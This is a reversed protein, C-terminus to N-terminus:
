WGSAGGAGGVGWMGLMSITGASMTFDGQCNLVAIGGNTVAGSFTLTGGTITISSYNKEIYNSSLAITTTGASVSLAGDAGNGGYGKQANADVQFNTGDYKFDYINGAVIQGVGVNTWLQTIINKTGLGNVNITSSGATNTNAIKLRVVMGTTYATIAPVFTGVYANAAGTDLVYLQSGSQIGAQIVSPQASLPGVWGTAAGSTFEAQTTLEVGGISTLTAASIVWSAEIPVYAAGNWYVLRGLTTDWWTEGVVKNTRATLQASTKSVFPGWQTANFKQDHMDVLICKQTALWTYVDSWAAIPIAVPDINRTLTWLIWYSWSPTNSQFDIWEVQEDNAFYLRGNPVWLDSTVTLTGGPTLKEKLYTSKGSAYSSSALNTM